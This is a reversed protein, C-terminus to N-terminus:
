ERNSQIYTQIYLLLSIAPRSRLTPLPPTCRSYMKNRKNRQETSQSSPPFWWRCPRHHTGKREWPELEVYLRRWFLSHIHFGSGPFLSAKEDIFSLVRDARGLGEKKKAVVATM